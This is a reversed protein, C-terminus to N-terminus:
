SRDRKGSGGPPVYGPDGPRKLWQPLDEVKRGRALERLRNAEDNLNRADEAIRQPLPPVHLFNRVNDSVANPIAKVLYLDALPDAPMRRADNQIIRVDPWREKVKAIFPRILSEKLPGVTSPIIVADLKEGTEFQEEMRRVWYELHNPDQANPDADEQGERYPYRDRFCYLQMGDITRLAPHRIIARAALEEPGDQAEEENLQRVSEHAPPDEGTWRNGRGRQLPHIRERHTLSHKRALPDCSDAFANTSQRDNPDQRILGLAGMSESAKEGDLVLINKLAPQTM